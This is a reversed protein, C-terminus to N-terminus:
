FSYPKAYIQVIVVSTLNNLFTTLKVWNTTFHGKLSVGCLLRLKPTCFVSVLVPYLLLYFTEFVFYNMELTKYDISISEFLDFRRCFCNFVPSFSPFIPLSVPCVFLIYHCKHQKCTHKIIRKRKKLVARLAIQNVLFNQRLQM